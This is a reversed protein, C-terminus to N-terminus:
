YGFLKSTLVILNAVSITEAVDKFGDSRPFITVGHLPHGPKRFNWFAKSNQRVASFSPRPIIKKLFQNCQDQFGLFQRIGYNEDDSLLMVRIGDHKRSIDWIIPIGELQYLRISAIYMTRANKTPVPNEESDFLSYIFGIREIIERSSFYAAGFIKNFEPLQEPALLAMSRACFQSMGFPDPKWREMFAELETSETM